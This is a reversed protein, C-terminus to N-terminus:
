TRVVPVAAATRKSRQRVRAMWSPVLLFWVADPIVDPRDGTFTLEVPGAVLERIGSSVVSSDATRDNAADLLHRAFEATADRLAPPIVGADLAYGNRDCMGARPWALAQNIRAAHGTWGVHADLLRTAQLLARVPQDAEAATWASGGQPHNEHYQDADAVTCYTNATSAGPTAVLGSVTM